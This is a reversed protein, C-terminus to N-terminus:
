QLSLVPMEMSADALSRSELESYAPVLSIDKYEM